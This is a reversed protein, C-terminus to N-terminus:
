CQAASAHRFKPCAKNGYIYIYGVAIFMGHQIYLTVILSWNRKPESSSSAATYIYQIGVLYASYICQIITGIQCAYLISYRNLFGGRRWRWGGRGRLCRGGGRLCRAVWLQHRDAHGSCDHLPRAFFPLAAHSRMHLLGVRAGGGQVAIRVGIVARRSGAGTRRHAAARGARAAAGPRGGWERWPLGRECGRRGPRAEVIIETGTRLVSLHQTAARLLGSNRHLSAASTHAEEVHAAMSRQWEEGARQM